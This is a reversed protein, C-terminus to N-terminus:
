TRRGPRRVGYSGEIAQGVPGRNRISSAVEGIIVNVLERGDAGRSRETRAPQGSHNHVNVEVDRGGGDRGVPALAAMQEPTFVGEGRRAIIPVEGPLIGGRHYRPAGRFLSSPVVRQTLRGGVIGGTHAVGASASGGGAAAGSGAFLDGFGIASLFSAVLREAAIQALVNLVSRGFAEFADSASRTGAIVDALSDTLGAEISQKVRAATENVILGLRRQQEAYAEVSAVAEPGLAEALERMRPLLADLEGQTQQHLEIVRRRGELETIIGAERDTQIRQEQLQMRDLIQERDRALQEFESRAQELGMLTQVMGVGERDGAARLRALLERFEAELRASEAAASEGRAELLRIRVEELERALGREAEAIGRATAEAVARRQQSILILQNDLEVVREKPAAEQLALARRARVSAEQAALEEERLAAVRAYFERYSIEGRGLQDQLAAEEIQGRSQAFQEAFSTRVVNMRVELKRAAEIKAEAERQRLQEDAAAQEESAQRDAAMRADQMARMEAEIEAVTARYRNARRERAGFLDFGDRSELDAIQKLLEARREFLRIFELHADREADPTLSQLGRDLLRIADALPGSQQMSELLESWSQKLGDVAGEYESAAARAAGKIGTLQDMVLALARGKDGADQFQQAMARQEATVSIGLGRLSELGRAPDDLIRALKRAAETPSGGMVEGLDLVMEITEGLNERTAVGAGILLSQIDRIEASTALTARAIERAQRDLGQATVGAANGTARIQAELRLLQREASAYERTGAAVAATAAAAGAALGLMGLRAKSTISLFSEMSGGARGLPGPMRSLVNVSEQTRDRFGRQEGAAKRTKRGLDETQRAAGSQQKSASEAADGTGELRQGFEDLEAIAEDLDARVRLLLESQRSM